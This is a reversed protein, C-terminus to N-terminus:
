EVKVPLVKGSKLNVLGDECIRLYPIAAGTLTILSLLPDPFTVGREAVAKKIERLKQAIAEIPLDSMIGFIPLPLETVVKGNECVVAGGQLEHIRNVAAALDTDNTGVVVIDSSDWGASCAMAGSKLGFGKILGVATQGPNHTRDIAAVKIVDREVDSKIEGAIVPWEIQEETTVLDTLMNIVRVKQVRADRGGDIIFNVPKFETGINVSNLSETSFTHARPAAAPRGDRAIVKGNSVVLRAQVTKLDPILVMDALRGPAIGGILPDLGFHEAVNLTAMQVAAIPDFGCDIAKQLVYEMYGKEMLDRPEIGDTSLILRRLDIGRDKIQAIEALDRRISGERVLIHLGARLRELVQDADIPEHCSTIGAGVYAALKKDSAGATHGELTKGAALTQEFQPLIDGPYQLISQWYSEGLGLIDDRALLRTLDERDIGRAASSISVVAPATALIKIPQDKLSALFDVVGAYGCVPYPELTETVVTTTGGAMAYRLFEAPTFMWAIHTHGDILGPTVTQGRADIVETTPGIADRANQGVYAIWKDKVTITQDKLLEGTYVNVMDANIIALDAKEHGLAVKILQSTEEATKPRLIGTTTM